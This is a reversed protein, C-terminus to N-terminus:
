KENIGYEMKVGKIIDMQIILNGDGAIKVCRM